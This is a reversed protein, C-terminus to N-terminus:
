GVLTHVSSLIVCWLCVAHMFGCMGIRHRVGLDILKDTCSVTDFSSVLKGLLCDGLLTLDPMYVDRPAVYFGEPVDEGPNLWQEKSVGCVIAIWSDDPLLRAEVEDEPIM